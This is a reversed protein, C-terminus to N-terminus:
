GRHRREDGAPGEPQINEQGDPYRFTVDRFEIDGYLPEWNEKKPHFSDGYKEVVEPTDRVDSETEMLKTFREVNVQVNTLASLVQVLWQIPEMMGQAYNMFVSLTGVLIVGERTIIGGRWLVIALAVSAALATTSMFLSRTRMERVSVRKMEGTLNDFETEMRDEIVLTKTTKAGTIGENFACTIQSNRERVQRHYVVLKKQFYVGSVALVPVIVMVGLALKWNMLAMCVLAFVIMAVARFVSVFQEEFFTKIREVDSTCRQIIDGTPNQMHWKWPLHQIHHYLLDRSTKVLTEGAKSSYINVCYRMIASLLGLWAMFAAGGLAAVIPRAAASKVPAEGILSDVSVRIIQPIVLECLTFLLSAAICAAFYRWSGRLLRALTRGNSSKKKQKLPNAESEKFSLGLASNPVGIGGKHGRVINM